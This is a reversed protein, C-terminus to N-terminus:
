PPSPACLKYTSVYLNFEDEPRLSLVPGGQKGGTRVLPVGLEEGGKGGKGRDECFLLPVGEKNVLLVLPM